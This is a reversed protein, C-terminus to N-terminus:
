SNFYRRNPSAVISIKDLTTFLAQTLIEKILFKPKLVINLLYLILFAGIKRCIFFAYFKVESIETKPRCFHRSFIKKKQVKIPATITIKTSPKSAAPGGGGTEWPKEPFSFGIKSIDEINPKSIM